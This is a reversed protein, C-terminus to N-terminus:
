CTKAVKCAKKSFQEQNIGPVDTQYLQLRRLLCEDECASVADVLEKKTLRHALLTRQNVAKKMQEPHKLMELVFDIEGVSSRNTLYVNNFNEDNAKKALRKQAKQLKQAKRSGVTM